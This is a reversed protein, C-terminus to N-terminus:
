SKDIKGAREHEAVWKSHATPYATDNGPLIFHGGSIIRSTEAGCSCRATQADVQTFHEQVINCEPCRFDYLRM